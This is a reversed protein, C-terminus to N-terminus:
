FKDFEKHWNQFSLGIGRWIKYGEETQHFIVGRYKKLEFLIYKARFSDLLNWLARRCPYRNLGFSFLSVGNYAFHFIFIQFGNFNDKQYIYVTIPESLWSLYYKARSHEFIRYLPMFRKVSGMIKKM